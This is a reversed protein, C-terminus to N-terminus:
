AGEREVERLIEHLIALGKPKRVRYRIVMSYRYGFPSRKRYFSWDWALLCDHPKTIARGQQRQLTRTASIAIIELGAGYLSPPFGIGDHEVWPGWENDDTM